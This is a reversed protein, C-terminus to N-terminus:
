PKVLGYGAQEVAKQLTEFPVKSEDYQVTLTETALNVSASEVGPVKGAAKQVHMACAACSMGTVEFNNDKM